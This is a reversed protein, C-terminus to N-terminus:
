GMARQFILTQDAVRGARHADGHVFEGIRGRYARENLCATPTQVRLDNEIGCKMTAIGVGLGELFETLGADGHFPGGVLHDVLLFRDGDIVGGRCDAGPVRV